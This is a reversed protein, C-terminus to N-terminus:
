SRPGLGLYSLIGKAIDNAITERWSPNTMKAEGVFNSIFDTEVLVSPAFTERLVCLNKTPMLTVNSKRHKLFDNTRKSLDLSEDDKWRFLSEFSSFNKKNGRKDMPSHERLNYKNKRSWNARSAHSIKPDMRYLQYGNIDRNNNSNCHISVFVTANKKNSIECRKHLDVFVDTKRIMHVRVNKQRLIIEVRKTIDLVVDKERLGSLGVAGSDKGGHGADLVVLSGSMESPLRRPTGLWGKVRIKDLFDSSVMWQGNLFLSREKLKIAKGEILCWYSNDLLQFKGAIRLKLDIDDVIASSNLNPWVQNLSFRTAASLNQVFLLILLVFIFRM